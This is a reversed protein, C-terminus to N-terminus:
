PLRPGLCRLSRRHKAPAPQARDEARAVRWWILEHVHLAFWVAAVLGLPVLPRVALAVPPSPPARWRRPSAAAASRARSASASRSTPSCATLLQHVRITFFDFYALWFSSAVALGLVAGVIM